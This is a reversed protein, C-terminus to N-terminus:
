PWLLINYLNLLNNSSKMYVEYRNILCNGDKKVNHFNM